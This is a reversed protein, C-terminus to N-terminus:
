RDPEGADGGSEPSGGGADRSSPSPAARPGHRAIFLAALLLLPLGVAVGVFGEAVPGTQGIAAGGPTPEDQLWRIYAALAAQEQPNFDFVPM